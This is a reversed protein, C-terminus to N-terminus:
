ELLVLKAAHTEEGTHLRVLYLGSALPRGRDDRGDWRHESLGTPAAGRFLVRVCRGSPAYVDLEVARAASLVFRITASPNAPNPQPPLLRAFAAPPPAAGAPASTGEGGSFVTRFAFSGEGYLEVEETLALDRRDWGAHLPVPNFAADDYIVTVAGGRENALRYWTSSEPTAGDHDRALLGPGELLLGKLDPSLGLRLYAPGALSETVSTALTDSGAPLVHSLAVLGDPSVFSLGGPLLTSAFIEDAYAGNAVKFGTCRTASEDAYEEEGPASPNGLPNGLLLVADERGADYRAALLLRGGREQWLTWLKANRLVIEGLGDLDADERWVSTGAPLQGAGVSDAWAAARCLAVADRVHNQLRLAWTSMGDWSTDPFLWDGFGDSDSYDTQDEEHWATEYTMAAFCAEALFRLEGAPAAVIESWTEFILTGPTNLDGHPIGSPLPPGDAAPGVGRRHYDGQEGEIIPVLDYFSQENGPLGGSENYYWNHYSDECAHQLWPYSMIELDYRYGQEIIWAPDADARDVMDALTVIEAWPHNALWRVGWQYQIPNDNPIMEGTEPGFSKGALAEWDDFVLVLQHDDALAKDLLSRRTETHLGEDQSWFKYQDERHNIQFCLVGNIRHVRHRYPPDPWLPEDPYFWHHLHGVADLYTARYATAAIDEFSHGDLPSMGTSLSRIVREPTHMVKLESEGLGFRRRHLSDAVAFSSANAPGECYPLIHEAFVGGILAGPRDTQDADAFLAIEDLLSPGDAPDVPGDPSAAWALGALLTGSAHLNIPVGFIRHTDLTRVLGTGGPIGTDAETDYVHVRLESGRNLSQNGHAVSAYPVCGPSDSALIAGHLVGDGCGRDDDTFADALDSSAGGGSCAGEAFDKASAVQFRLEAEGDWGAALLLSQPLACEVADLSRSWYSGGFQGNWGSGYASDYLNFDTGPVDGEGYLALCLEWPTDTMCDLFDPLWDAGGPACDVTVYLDVNSEWGPALDLLDVRLYLQGDELRHYFAVLDRGDDHGDWWLLNFGGSDWEDLARLDAHTWDQFEEHFTWGSKDTGIEPGPGVTIGARPASLPIAALIATFLISLRRM